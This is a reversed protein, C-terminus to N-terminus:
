LRIFNSGLRVLALARMIEIASTFISIIILLLMTLDPKLDYFVYAATLSRGLNTHDKPRCSGIAVLPIHTVKRTDCFNSM